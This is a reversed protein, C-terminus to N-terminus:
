WALSIVWLIVIIAGGSREGGVELRREYEVLETRYLPVTKHIVGV